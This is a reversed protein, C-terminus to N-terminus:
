RNGGCTKSRVRVAECKSWWASHLVQNARSPKRGFMAGCSETRAATRRRNRQLQWNAFQPM